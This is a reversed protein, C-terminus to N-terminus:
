FLQITNTELIAENVDVMLTYPSAKFASDGLEDYAYFFRVKDTDRLKGTVVHPKDVVLVLHEDSEQMGLYVLGVMTGAILLPGLITMILFSPKRVRTIFERRIILLIKNM